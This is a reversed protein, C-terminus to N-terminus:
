PGDLLVTNEGAGHGDCLGGCREISATHADHSLWPRGPRVLPSMGHFCVDAAQGRERTAAAHQSGAGGGHAQGGHAQGGQQVRLLVLHADAVEGREGAEEAREAFVGHHARLHGGLLDVGGAADHALLDFHEALVRDVRLHSGGLRLAHELAVAHHHEHALDVGGRREGDRLHRRAVLLHEEAGTGTGVRQAALVAVAVGEVDVDRDRHHDVGHALRQHAVVHDLALLDEAQRGVVQEPVVQGLRGLAEERGVAAVTASSSTGVSTV